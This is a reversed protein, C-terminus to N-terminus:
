RPATPVAERAIARAFLAAAVEVGSAAVLLTLLALEMGINYAPPVGFPANTLAGARHRRSGIPSCSRLTPRGTGSYPVTWYVVVSLRPLPVGRPRDPPAGTGDDFVRPMQVAAAVLVATAAILQGALVDAGLARVIAFTIFGVAFAISVRWQQHRIAFIGCVDV